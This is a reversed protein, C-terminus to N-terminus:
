RRARGGARSGAGMAFSIWGAAVLALAGLPMMALGELVTDADWPGVDMGDDAPASAHTTDMAVPDSSGTACVV